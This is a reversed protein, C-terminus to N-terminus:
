EWLLEESKDRTRSLSSLPASTSSQQNNIEECKNSAEVEYSDEKVTQFVIPSATYWSTPGRTSPWSLWPTRSGTKVSKVSKDDEV